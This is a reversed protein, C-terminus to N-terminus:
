IRQVISRRASVGARYASKDLAACVGIGKAPRAWTAPRRQVVSRASCMQQRQGLQELQACLRFHGIEVPDRRDVHEADDEAEAESRAACVVALSV